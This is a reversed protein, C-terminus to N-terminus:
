LANGILFEEMIDDLKDPLHNMLENCNPCLWLVGLHHMSCTVGAEVGCLDCPATMTRKGECSELFDQFSFMVGAGFLRHGAEEMIRLWKVIGTADDIEHIGTLEELGHQETHIRLREGQFLEHDTEIYLGERSADYIVAHFHGGTKGTICEIDSPIRSKNRQRERHEKYPEM